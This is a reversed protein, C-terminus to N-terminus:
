FNYYLFVTVNTFSLMSSILCLVSLLARKLTLKDTQEYINKTCFILLMILVVWIISEIFYVVYQNVPFPLLMISLTTSGVIHLHESIRHSLAIGNWTFLRKIFRLGQSVSGARFMVWAINVALFTAAVRLPAFLKDIKNHIMRHICSLLGHFAGWLIFTWNAGHWLGSALFTLMLNVYTRAKGKRSGGLPIYIYCKLFRGLTIHWRQWFEAISKSKYPSNFNMPLKINFMKAIGTAMDCYGSFDFYIQFTYCFMVLWAEFTSLEGIMSYGADVVLNMRDAIMVKKALGISFDYIGEAFNVTNFKYTEESQFQPIMESHLVIPGAILQPFFTIFLAYDSFSYKPARGGYVDAIYSIQQFTYFSIGLPLMFNLYDFSQGLIMNLNMLLFDFYKFYFLLGLNAAMAAVFLLRKAHKRDRYKLLALSFLYNVSLSACIMSLYYINNYAYFVLSAIILFYKVAQHKKACGLAYYGILVLPLFVLIFTYSNFLM